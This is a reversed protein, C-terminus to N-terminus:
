GLFCEINVSIFYANCFFSKVAAASQNLEVEICNIEGVGVFM